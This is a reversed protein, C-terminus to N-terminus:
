GSIAVAGERDLAAGLGVVVNKLLHMVGSVDGDILELLRATLAREAM